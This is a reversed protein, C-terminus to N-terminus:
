ILSGEKRSTSFELSGCSLKLVVICDAMLTQNLAQKWTADAKKEVYGINLYTPKKHM